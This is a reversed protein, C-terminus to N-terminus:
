ATADPSATSSEPESTSSPSPSESTADSTDGDSSRRGLPVPVEPIARVWARALGLVIQYPQARLGETTAPEPLSWEVLYPGFMEVIADFQARVDDDGLEFVLGVADFYTGFPLPSIRVTATLGPYDEFELQAAVEPLQYGM